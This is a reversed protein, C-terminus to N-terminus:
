QWRLAPYGDGGMKWVSAFDWGLGEYLAQAPKAACDEGDISFNTVVGGTTQSEFPQAPQGSVTVSMGSWGYVVGVDGTSDGIVRGVRPFGNPASISPNLAVCSFLLAGAFGGSYEGGGGSACFGAIGGAGQQSASGIETPLARVTVAARSYCNKMYTAVQHQGVIGGANVYGNVTGSSWCDIIRSNHGTEKSLYGSIGGAYDNIKGGNSSRSTVTGTFYCEAVMGGYYIYGTIGSTYPWQGSKGVSEVNGSAWCRYVKTTKEFSGDGDGCVVGSIGGTWAWFGQVECYVNGTNSCYSISGQSETTFAYYSGGAIGGVFAQAGGTNGVVRVNGTSRCRLIDAGDKFIGVFGGLFNYFSTDVLGGGTGASLYMNMSTECDKIVTGEQAYGAVGGMYVVKGSRAEFVGSLRIASFETQEAYGALLGFAQAKACTTTMEAEVIDSIIILNKIEAKSGQSGKVASFIGVYSKGSVADANFSRLTVTHGMGDLSGSFPKSSSALPDSVSGWIGDGIPIWNELELNTDLVYMGALPWDAEVGIKAFDAANTIQKTQGDLRTITVTYNKKTGDEATVRITITNKGEQLSIGQQAPNDVTSKASVTSATVTISATTNKVSVAYGTTEPRFVPSLNGESLVISELDANSELAPPSGSGAPQECAAFLCVAALAGFVARRAAAM